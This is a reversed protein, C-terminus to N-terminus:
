SGFLASVAQFAEGVSLVDVPVNFGSAALRHMCDTIEPLDLGHSELQEADTFVQRLTDQIVLRGGDLVFARDALDIVDELAHTAIVLTVGQEKNLRRLTDVM